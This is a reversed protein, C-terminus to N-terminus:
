ASLPILRCGAPEGTKQGTRQAAYEVAGTPCYYVAGGLCTGPHDSQRLGPLRRVTRRSLVVEYGGPTCFLDQETNRGGCQGCGYRVNSNQLGGAWDKHENFRHFYLGSLMPFLAGPGSEWPSCPTNSYQQLVALIRTFSSGGGSTRQRHFPQGPSYDRSVSRLRVARLTGRM